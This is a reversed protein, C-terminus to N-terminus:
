LRGSNNGMKTRNVGHAQAALANLTVTPRVVSRAQPRFRHSITMTVRSSRGEQMGVAGIWILRLLEYPSSVSMDSRHRSGSSIM